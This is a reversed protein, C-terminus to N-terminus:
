YIKVTATIKNSGGAGNRNGAGQFGKDIRRFRAKRRIIIYLFINLIEYIKKYM